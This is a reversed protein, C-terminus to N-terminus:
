WNKYFENCNDTTNLLHENGEYPICQEYWLGGAVCYNLSDKDYHSYFAAVWKKNNTRVLVKSEFPKLTNIDFKNPALEWDDQESVPLVGINESGQSLKLEYYESIVSDVIWSNTISNRRVIRDGVKFRPEVLKELTKTEANWKYGNDKIAQFLKAKEEETAFHMESISNISCVNSKQYISKTVTSYSVYCYLVNDFEKKYIGYWLNKNIIASVVDGDKFPRHFGEWTTKGKPFIVCKAMNDNFFCGYKSLSIEGLPTDIKIPFLCSESIHNLTVNKCMACDLEMGSPCNKLLEAINTKEKM